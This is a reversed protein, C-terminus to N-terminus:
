IKSELLMTLRFDNYSRFSKCHKCFSKWLSATSVFIQKCPCALDLRSADKDDDSAATLQLIGSEEM